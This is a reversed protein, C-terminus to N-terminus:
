WHWIYCHQYLLLNCNLITWLAVIRFYCIHKNSIIEQHVRNKISQKHYKLLKLNILFLILFPTSSRIVMHTWSSCLIFRLAMKVRAGWVLFPFYLQFFDLGMFSIVMFIGMILATKLPGFLPISTLIRDNRYLYFDSLAFQTLELHPRIALVILLTYSQSKQTKFWM